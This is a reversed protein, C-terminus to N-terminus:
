KIIFCDKKYAWLNRYLRKERLNKIVDKFEVLRTTEFNVRVGLRSRSMLFKEIEKVQSLNYYARTRPNELPEDGPLVDELIKKSALTSDECKEADFECGILYSCVEDQAEVSRVHICVSAQDPDLSENFLKERDRELSITGNHYNLHPTVEIISFEKEEDKRYEGFYLYDETTAKIM